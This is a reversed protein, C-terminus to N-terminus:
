ARTTSPAAGRTSGLVACAGGCAAGLPLAFGLNAARRATVGGGPQGLQACRRATGRSGARASRGLRAGDVPPQGLWALVLAARGRGAIGPRGVGFVRSTSGRGDTSHGRAERSRAAGM